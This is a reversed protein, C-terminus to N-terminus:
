ENNLSEKIWDWIGSFIAGIFIFLVWLICIIAKFFGKPEIKM